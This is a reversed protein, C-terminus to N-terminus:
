NGALADRIGEVDATRVYAILGQYLDHFGMGDATMEDIARQRDWNEIVIRYMAILYGTRDAGHECHLFVPQAQPDTAIRLFWIVNDDSPSWPSMGRQECRLGLAAAAARDDDSTRVNLITKVGMDRVRELGESTPQAGRYLDDNIKRFNPLDRDGVAYSTACGGVGLSLLLAISTGLRIM